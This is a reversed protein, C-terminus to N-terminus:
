ATLWNPSFPPFFHSALYFKRQESKSDCQESAAKSGECDRVACDINCMGIHPSYDHGVDKSKAAKGPPVAENRARARQNRGPHDEGSAVTHVIEIRKSQTGVLHM